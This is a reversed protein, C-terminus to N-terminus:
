RASPIAANEALRAARARRLMLHYELIGRAIGEALRQRHAPNAILAADVPNTLFGCEVLAAPCPADRLVLFRARKLGRDQTGAVRVLHRQLQYGLAANAADFANGPTAAYRNSIGSRVAATPPFGAAPLVYTEVGRSETETAANFHISVFLSAGRAAARASRADLEILRDDERTLEVKLGAVALRARVRRAVDLTLEKELLGYLGKAGGDMGGHGPDLLIPGSVTANALYLYPRCVVDAIGVADQRHLVGARLLEPTLPYQLWVVTGMLRARRGDPLPEFQWPASVMAWRGDPVAELRAGYVAAMRRLSVFGDALAGAPRLPTLAARASPTLALLALALVALRQPKKRM